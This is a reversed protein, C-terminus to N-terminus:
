SQESQKRSSRFNGPPDRVWQSFAAKDRRVGCGTMQPHIQFKRNGSM